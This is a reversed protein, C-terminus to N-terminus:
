DEAIRLREVGLVSKVFECKTLNTLRGDIGLVDAGHLACEASFYGELCGIDIVRRKKFDGKLQQSVIKMIEKHAPYYDDCFATFVKYPLKINHNWPSLFDRIEVINKRNWRVNEFSRRAIKELYVQADRQPRDANQKM